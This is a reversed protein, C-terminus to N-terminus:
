RRTWRAKMWKNEVAEVARPTRSGRTTNSSNVTGGKDNEAKIPAAVPGRPILTKCPKLSLSAMSNGLFWARIMWVTFLKTRGPFLIFVPMSSM